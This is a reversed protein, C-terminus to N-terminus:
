TSFPQQALFLRQRPDAPAPPRAGVLCPRRAHAAPSRFHCPGPSARNHMKVAQSTRVLSVSVLVLQM